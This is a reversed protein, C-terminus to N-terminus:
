QNPDMNFWRNLVTLDWTMTPIKLRKIRLPLEANQCKRVYMGKIRKTTDGPLNNKKDYFTQIEWNVWKSRYTTEGIIVLMKTANSLLRKLEKRVPAARVDDPQYPLPTGAKDKVPQVESWDHFELEHEPNKALARINEVQMHNELAFSIFINTPM